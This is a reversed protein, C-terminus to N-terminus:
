EPVDRDADAGDVTSSMTPTKILLNSFTEAFGLLALSILLMTTVAAFLFPM